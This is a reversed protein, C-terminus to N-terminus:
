INNTSYSTGLRLDLINSMFTESDFVYNCIKCETSPSFQIKGNMFWIEEETNCSPCATLARLVFM